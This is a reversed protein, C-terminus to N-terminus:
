LGAKALNSWTTTSTGAPVHKAAKTGANVVMVKMGAEQFTKAAMASSCISKKFQPFITRLQALPGVLHYEMAMTSGKFHWSERQWALVAGDPMNMSALRQHITAHQDIPETTFYIIYANSAIKKLAEGAAKSGDLADFEVAVVSMQPDWVYLPVYRHLEYGKPDQLGVLMYYKGMRGGVPVAAAAYGQNDTFAGIVRDQEVTMSIAVKKVPMMVGAFENRQLRLVTNAQKDKAAVQDPVTLRYEGSCGALGCFGVLMAM